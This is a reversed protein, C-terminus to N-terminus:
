NAALYKSLLIKLKNAENIQSECVFYRWESNAILNRLAAEGKLDKKLWEIIESYDTRGTSNFGNEALINNWNNRFLLINNNESEGLNFEFLDYYDTIASRLNNDDIYSFLGASKIEDMTSKHLVIKTLQNARNFTTKLFRADLSDPFPMAWGSLKGKFAEPTSEVETNRPLDAYVLIQQMSYYRFQNLSKQDSLVETDEDLDHILRELYINLSEKLKRDENWNNIALAILIGIVVLVIEGIAYRSYKFFQNDMALQFRIKRFFPLM